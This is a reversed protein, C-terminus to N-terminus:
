KDLRQVAFFFLIWSLNQLEEGRAEAVPTPMWLSLPQSEYPFKIKWKGNNSHVGYNQMVTELNASM